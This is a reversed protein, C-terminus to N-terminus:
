SFLLLFSVSKMLERVCDVDIEINGLPSEFESAESLICSRYIFVLVSIVM